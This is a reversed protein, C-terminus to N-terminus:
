LVGMKKLFIAAVVGATAWVARLVWGSVLANVPHQGELSTVRAEIKSIASFARELASATSAHREELRALRELADAVKSLTNKVEALSQRIAGIETHMFDKSEGPPSSM